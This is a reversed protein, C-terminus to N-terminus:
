ERVEDPEVGWLATKLAWGRYGGATLRCWDTSCEGLDAIVGAELVANETSAADARSRLVMMNEDVIVTRSGSIMTYHVWGGQGDRDIVRRWHGYEAVVQLPMNRRKFVWDIRHTLSPGRRVNAESAKLSVYRPIPLNTEPGLTVGADEVAVDVTEQANATGACLLAVCLIKAWSFM